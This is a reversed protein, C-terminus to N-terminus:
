LWTKGRLKEQVTWKSLEGPMIMAREFSEILLGIFNRYNAKLWKM